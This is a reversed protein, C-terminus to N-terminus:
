DEVERKHLNLQSKLQELVIEKNKNIWQDDLTEYSSNFVLSFTFSKKTADNKFPHFVDFLICKKLHIGSISLIVNLIKKWSLHYPAIIACDRIVSPFKNPHGVPHCSVTPTSHFLRLLIQVNLDFLFIPSFVGFKKWEKVKFGSIYGVQIPKSLSSFIVINVHLFKQHEASADFFDSVNHSKELIFEYNHVHFLDLIRSVVGKIWFFYSKQDIKTHCSTDLINGMVIGALMFVEQIKDSSNKLFIDGIEFFKINKEGYSLNLGLNSILEYTLTPRLVNKLKSTANWITVCRNEDIVNRLSQKGLFGTNCVEFFGIDVLYTKIRDMLDSDDFTRNMFQKFSLSSNLKSIFNSEDKKDTSIANYGNIRLIEEIYDQFINLDTRWKPSSVEMWQETHHVIMVGVRQLFLMIDENSITFGIIGRVKSFCIKLSSVIIKKSYHYDSILTISSFSFAKIYNIAHQLTPYANMKALGREFRYSSETEINLKKRTKYILSADFVASELIINKTSSSISTHMGGIIGAIAIPQEMNAIILMSSDLQYETGNLALLKEGKQARRVIIQNSILTDMDYAHMPHGFGLLLYNTLDVINNISKNGCRILRIYTKYDTEKVQIGQICVAHYDTCGDQDLIECSITKQFSSLEEDIYFSESFDSLDIKLGILIERAIGFHSLCDARNPSTSIDLIVDKFDILDSIEKGLVAADDLYLLEESKDSVGLDDMSCLMGESYIGRIKKKVVRINQSIIAGLKAWAVKKGVVLNPAGCVVEQINIGDSVQVLSLRDANPHKKINLIQSVIVGSIPNFTVNSEVEIGQELLLDIWQDVSLDFVFYRDQILDQIWSLSIKM